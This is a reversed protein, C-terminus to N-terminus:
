ECSHTGAVHDFNKRTSLPLRRTPPLPLPPSPPPPPPPRSCLCVKFSRAKSRLAAEFDGTECFEFFKAIDPLTGVSVAQSYPNQSYFDGIPLIPNVSRFNKNVTTFLFFKIIWMHILSITFLFRHILQVQFPTGVRNHRASNICVGKAHTSVTTLM